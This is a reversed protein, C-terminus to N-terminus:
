LENDSTFAVYSSATLEIKAMAKLDAGKPKKAFQIARGRSDLKALGYNSARSEGVAECSITIEANDLNVSVTKRKGGCWDQTRLPPVPNPEVRPHCNTTTAEEETMITTEEVAKIVGGTAMMTIM